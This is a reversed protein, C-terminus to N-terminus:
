YVRESNLLSNLHVSEGNGLKHAVVEYESARPWRTVQISPAGHAFLGNITVEFEEHSAYRVKAQYTDAGQSNPDCIIFSLSQVRPSSGAITKLDYEISSIIKSANNWCIAYQADISENMAAFLLQKIEAIVNITEM